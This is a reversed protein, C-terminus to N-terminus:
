AIGVREQLRVLNEQVNSLASCVDAETVIVQGDFTYFPTPVPFYVPVPLLSTRFPYNWLTRFLVMDRRNSILSMRRESTSIRAEFVDLSLVDFIGKVNLLLIVRGLFNKEVCRVCM